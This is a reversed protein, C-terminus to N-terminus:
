IPVQMGSPIQDITERESGQLAAEVLSEVELSEEIREIGAIEARTEPHCPVAIWM